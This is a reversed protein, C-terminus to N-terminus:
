KAMQSLFKAEYKQLTEIEDDTLQSLDNPNLRGKLHQFASFLAHAMVSWGRRRDSGEIHGVLIDALSESVQQASDELPLCEYNLITETSWGKSSPSCLLIETSNSMLIPSKKHERMQKKVANKCGDYNVTEMRWCSSPQCEYRTWGDEDTTVHFANVFFREFPIWMKHVVVLSQKPLIPITKNPTSWSEGNWKFSELTRTDLFGIVSTNERLFRPADLLWQGSTSALTCKVGRGLLFCQVVEFTWYGGKSCYTDVPVSNEQALGAAINNLESECINYLLHEIAVVGKKAGLKFDSM